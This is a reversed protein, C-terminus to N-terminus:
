VMVAKIEALKDKAYYSCCGKKAVPELALQKIAKKVKTDTVGLEKAIAGATMVEDM